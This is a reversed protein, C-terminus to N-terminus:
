LLLLLLEEPFVWGPTSLSAGESRDPLGECDAVGVWKTEGICGVVRAIAAMAYWCTPGVKRDASGKGSSSNWRRTSEHFEIM